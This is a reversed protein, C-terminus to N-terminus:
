YLLVMRVMQEQEMREEVVVAQTLLPQRLMELDLHILEVVMQAEVLVVMVEIIQLQHMDLVVVAVLTTDVIVQQHLLLGHQFVILDLEVMEVLDEQDVEMQVQVVKVVVAVELLMVVLLAAVLEVMIEKDLLEQVELSQLQLGVEMDVEVQDVMEVMRLLLVQVM